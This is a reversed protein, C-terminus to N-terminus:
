IFMHLLASGRVLYYSILGKVITPITGSVQRHRRLIVMKTSKLRRIAIHDIHWGEWEAGGDDGLGWALNM